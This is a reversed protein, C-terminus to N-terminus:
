IPFASVDRPDHSFSGLLAQSSGKLSLAVHVFALFKKKSPAYSRGSGVQLSQSDEHATEPIGTLDAITEMRGALHIGTPIHIDEWESSHM